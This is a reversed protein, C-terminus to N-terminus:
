AIFCVFLVEGDRNETVAEAEGDRHGVTENTVRRRLLHINPNPCEQQSTKKLYLYMCDRERDGERDRETERDRQRERERNRETECVGVCVCVWVCM